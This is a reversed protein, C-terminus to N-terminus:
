KNMVQLFSGIRVYLHLKPEDFYQLLLEVQALFRIYENEKLVKTENRKRDSAMVTNRMSM